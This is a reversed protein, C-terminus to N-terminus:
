LIMLEKSLGTIIESGDTTVVVLDEIRVGGWGPLYVGPEITVVMGPELLEEGLPYLRPGEHVARGVGHGLGHGFHEAHGAAAIIDRAVADIEKGKKGPRVAALAEKQARLVLDYIERMKDDVTGIAVTRTCDSCYGDVKAGFDLTVFDGEQLRRETPHGHPLSSRPGSAVITEFANGQAGLKRMQYEFEVAIEKESVGPRLLPLINTFAQDAIAAAKKILALEGADKVMRLGEVLGEQPVLEVGLNEKLNEYLGYTLHDKEFFIKQLGAKEALEKLTAHFQPGHRVVEMHPAQLTAQEVYRFDTVLWSAGAATILLVGASGDFGSLYARNEPKTVLLAEIGKEEMRRRLKEVRERMVGGREKASLPRM